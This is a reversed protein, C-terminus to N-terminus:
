ISDLYRQAAKRTTFTRHANYNNPLIGMDSLSYSTEYEEGDISSRTLAKFFWAGSTDSWRSWYPKCTPKLLTVWGKMRKDPFAHVTYLLKGQKCLKKARNNLTKM